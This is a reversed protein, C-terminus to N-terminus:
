DGSKEAATRWAATLVANLADVDVKGNDTTPIAPHRRFAGPMLHAPLRPALHERLGAVTLEAGRRVVYHAVLLPDGHRSPLVAAVCRAVDPHEEIAAEPEGLEVRFGRIQVQRDRRGLYHLNGSADRVGWDGSRYARRGRFTIFRQETLEPRGLYGHAVGVGSIVLEGPTGDPVPRLVEDVLEIGLHPLATGIPTAGPRVPAADVPLPGYTVHVTTETIGYMNVLDAGPALGLERWRRVAPLDVAEGGFVVHRLDPLYRPREELEALLYGFATPVQNLVTVGEDGLLRAFARPDAATERAVVIGTGGTLLPGWMEWVSFDFGHSHFLTWVDSARLDFLRIGAEILALVQEHGVLVGKPRGTSGSTYIVYAAGDPLNWPEGVRDEPVVDPEAMGPEFMVSAGLRADEAIFRRREAPYGPDIPVYACGHALIGLVGIAVEACRPMRLGVLRGPEVGAAALQDRVALARDRVERYDVARDGDVLAVADPTRRAQEIFRGHLNM